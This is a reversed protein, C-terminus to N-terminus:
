KVAEKIEQLTIGLFNIRKLMNKTNCIGLRLRKCVKIRLTKSNSDGTLGFQSLNQMTVKESKPTELIFYPSLVNIVEDKECEAVGNKNNKDCKTIDVLANYADPILDNLRNRIQKGANDSDSLIIIKKTESAKLVFEIELQNIDYGNTTVFEADIFSSLFAVDTKGEVIIVGDILYKM